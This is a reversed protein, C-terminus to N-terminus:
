PRAPTYFSFATRNCALCASLPPLYIARGMSLGLALVPHTTLAV